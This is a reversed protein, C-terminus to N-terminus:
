LEVKKFEKLYELHGDLENIFVGLHKKKNGIGIQATWKNLKKNWSVGVYNSSRNIRTKGINYRNTVIQLNEVRNDIKIDNIHDVVLKLGCPTHGLFAIAVVVHAGIIFSGNKNSLCYNLYGKKTIVGKILKPKSYKYSMLNGTNSIEYDEYGPVRKWIQEM